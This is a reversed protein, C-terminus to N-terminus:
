PVFTYPVIGDFYGNGATYEAIAAELSAMGSNNNGGAVGAGGEEVSSSTLKNWHIVYFRGVTPTYNGGGNATIYLDLYGYSSQLLSLDAAVQGVITGTYDSGWGGDYYYFTKTSKDITFYDYQTEWKGSFEAGAVKPGYRQPDGGTPNGCGTVFAGLNLVLFVAVLAKGLFSLRSKM